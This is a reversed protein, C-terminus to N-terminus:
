EKSVALAFRVMDDVTLELPNGLTPWDCMYYPTSLDEVIVYDKDVWNVAAHEAELLRAARKGRDCDKIEEFLAKGEEVKRDLLPTPVSFKWKAQHDYKRVFGDLSPAPVYEPQNDLYEQKQLAVELNDLQCWVATPLCVVDDGHMIYGDEFTCESKKIKKM